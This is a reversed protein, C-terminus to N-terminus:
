SIPTPSSPIAEAGGSGNNSPIDHTVQTQATKNDPLAAATQEATMGMQQAADIEHSDAIRDGLNEREVPPRSINMQSKLTTLRDNEEDYSVWPGQLNEPLRAMVIQVNFIAAIVPVVNPTIRHVFKFFEDGAVTWKKRRGIEDEEWIWFDGALQGDDMLTITAQAIAKPKPPKKESM